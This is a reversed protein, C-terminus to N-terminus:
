YDRRFDIGIGLLQGLSGESVLRAATRAAPFFRYNQSVMLVLGKARALEVLERAKELTDTFPKEVLVHLGADLGARVLPAHGAVTTTVLLADPRTAAIAEALSGFCRDRSAPVRNALLAFASPDSDVYGVVEVEDVTPNVRWAWDRGWDGLGVQVIRLRGTM